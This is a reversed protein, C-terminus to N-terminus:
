LDIVLVPSNSRSCCPTFQDNLAREEETLVLDRHDPEGSIVRTLCTGCIGQECSVAVEVGAEALAEAVTKDHPVLVRRNSKALEIYFSGDDARKEAEATFLEYHLQKAPWGANTATAMVADIFPKPGCVYIHTGVVPAGVADALNLETGAENDVHWVVRASFPREALAEKFAMRDRTRASYHLVFDANRDGLVMAMALMPTVGIGGAFLVSREASAVLPFNNKPASISLTDGEGITDCLSISGGRGMGERQLAIRYRSTEAPNSCLSYQRIVGSPLRVDVHAGAEFAPLTAGEPHALEFGFIGEAEVQKREVRVQIWKRSM